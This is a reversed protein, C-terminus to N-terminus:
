EPPTLHRLFAEPGRLSPCIILVSSTLSVCRMPQKATDSTYCSPENTYTCTCGSEVTVHKRLPKGSSELEFSFKFQDASAKQKLLFCCLIM